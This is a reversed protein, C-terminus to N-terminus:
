EGRERLTRLSEGAVRFTRRVKCKWRFRAARLVALWYRLRARWTMAGVPPAILDFGDPRGQPWSRYVMDGNFFREDYGCGIHCYESSWRKPLATNTSDVLLMPGGCEPCYHRAYDREPM